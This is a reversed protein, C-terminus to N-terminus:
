LDVDDDADADFDDLAEDDEDLFIFNQGGDM